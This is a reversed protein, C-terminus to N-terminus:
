IGKSGIVPEMTSPSISASVWQTKRLTPAIRFARPKVKSLTTLDVIKTLSITIESADIGNICLIKRAVGRRSTFGNL